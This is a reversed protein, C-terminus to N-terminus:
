SSGRENASEKQSFNTSDMEISDGQDEASNSNQSKQLSMNKSSSLSLTAFGSSSTGTNNSQSKSSIPTSSTSKSGKTHRKFVNFSGHKQRSFNTNEVRIDEESPQKGHYMSEPPRILKKDDETKFSEITLNSSLGLDRIPLEHFHDNNEQLIISQNKENRIKSFYKQLSSFPSSKSNERSENTSEPGTPSPYITNYIFVGQAITLLIPIAFNWMVLYLTNVIPMLITTNHHWMGYAFCVFTYSGNTEVFTIVIMNLNRVARKVRALKWKSERDGNENRQKLEEMHNNLISILKYWFFIVTSVYAASWGTWVLYHIKFFKNANRIDNQDAYYGTLAALPVGCMFPGFILASGWVDLLHKNPIWAATDSEINPISYIQIFSIASNGISIPLLGALGFGILRPIDQSLEAIM